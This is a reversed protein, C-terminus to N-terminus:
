GRRTCHDFLLAIGRIRRHATRGAFHRLAQVLTCKVKKLLSLCLCDTRTHRSAAGYGSTLIGGACPQSVSSLRPASPRDAKRGTSVAAALPNEVSLTHFLNCYIEYM